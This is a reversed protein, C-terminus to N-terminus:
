RERARCTNGSVDPYCARGLSTLMIRSDAISPMIYGTHLRGQLPNGRVDPYCASGLSTLTTRLDDSKGRAVVHLDIKIDGPVDFWEDDDPCTDPNVPSSPVSQTSLSPPFCTPPACLVRQSWQLVRRPFVIRVRSVFVRCSRVIFRVFYSCLIRFM